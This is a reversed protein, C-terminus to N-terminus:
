VPGSESSGDIELEIGPDAEIEVREHRVEDTITQREVARQKRVLVRERVVLRKTVVLQEELIPISVTGDPLTEILGSDGEDAPVRDFAAHEVAVPVEQEVLDGEVTKRVRVIGAEEVRREVILEEEHRVLAQTSQALPPAELGYHEYLLVETEPAIEDGEVGPSEEIATRGFPLRISEGDQEVGDTPVLVRKSPVFGTRIAIWEPEGTDRDYFIAQVDGVYEGDSALASSREVKARELEERNM